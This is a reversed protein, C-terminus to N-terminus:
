LSSFVADEQNNVDGLGGAQRADRIGQLVDQAGLDIEHGRDARLLNRRPYGRLSSLSRQGYEMATAAIWVDNTPIPTGQAKLSSLIVAYTEATDAGMGLVAVRPSQLFKRLEARNRTLYRGQAFGSLLEGLIVANFHVSEAEQLVRKIESNGRMFASYTSTDLIVRTM